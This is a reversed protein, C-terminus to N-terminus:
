GIANQCGLIAPFSPTLAAPNSSHCVTLDALSRFCLPRHPVVPFVLSGSNANANTHCRGRDSIRWESKTEEVEVRIPPTLAEGHRRFQERLAESVKSRDLEDVFELGVRFLYAKTKIAARNSSLSLFIEQAM